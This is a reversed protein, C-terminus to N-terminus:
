VSTRLGFGMIEEGAPNGQADADYVYVWHCESYDNAFDIRLKGPLGKFMPRVLADLAQVTDATFIPTGTMTDEDMDEIRVYSWTNTM